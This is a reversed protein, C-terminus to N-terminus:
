ITLSHTLLTPAPLPRLTAVSPNDARLVAECDDGPKWAGTVVEDASEQPEGKPDFYAFRIRLRTADKYAVPEVATVVAPVVLWERRRFLIVRGALVGAIFLLVARERGGRAAREGITRRLAAAM